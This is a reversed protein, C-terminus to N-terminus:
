QRSEGLDREGDAELAPSAAAFTGRVAHSPVVSVVLSAGALADALEATPEVGDALPVDSLYRPNRRERGM